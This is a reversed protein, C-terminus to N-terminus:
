KAPCPPAPIVRLAFKTDTPPAKVIHPDLNREAKRVMQCDLGQPTRQVVIHRAPVWKGASDRPIDLRLGKGFDVQFKPTTTPRCGPDASFLGCAGQAPLSVTGFVLLGVLVVAHKQM